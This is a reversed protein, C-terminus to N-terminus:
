GSWMRELVSAREVLATRQGAPIELETLWNTHKMWSAAFFHDGRVIFSRPTVQSAAPLAVFVFWERETQDVLQSKANVSWSALRGSDTASKM